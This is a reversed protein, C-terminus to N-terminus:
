SSPLSQQHPVSLPLVTPAISDQLPRGMVLQSALENPQNPPFWYRRSMCGSPPPVTGGSTGLVVKNEETQKTVRGGEGSMESETREDYGQSILMRTGHSKFFVPALYSIYFSSFFSLLLSFDRLRQFPTLWFGTLDKNRPLQTDTYRRQMAGSPCTQPPPPTGEPNASPDQISNIFWRHSFGPSM